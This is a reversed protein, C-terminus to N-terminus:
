IPTKGLVAALNAMSRPNLGLYINLSIQPFCWWANNIEKVWGKCSQQLVAYRDDTGCDKVAVRRMCWRHIRHLETNFERGRTWKIESM